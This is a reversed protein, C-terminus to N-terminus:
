TKAVYYAEKVEVSTFEELEQQVKELMDVGHFRMLKVNPAIRKLFPVHEESVLSCGSVHINLTHVHIWASPVDKDFLSQFSKVDILPISAVRLNRCHQIVQIKPTQYPYYEGNSTLHLEQLQEAYIIAINQLIQFEPATISILNPLQEQTFVGDHISSHSVELYKVTSLVPVDSLDSSLSLKLLKTPWKISNDILQSVYLDTVNDNTIALLDNLHDTNARFAIPKTQDTNKLLQLLTYFPIPVDEPDTKIENLLSNNCLELLMLIIAECSPINNRDIKGREWCRLRSIQTKYKLLQKMINNMHIEFDVQDERYSFSFNEIIFENGNAIFNNWKRCVLSLLLISKPFELYSFITNTLDSGISEILSLQDPEPQQQQVMTNKHQDRWTEFQQHIRKQACKKCLLICLGDNQGTALGGNEMSVYLPCFYDRDPRFADYFDYTNPTRRTEKSSWEYKDSIQISFECDNCQEQELCEECISLTKYVDYWEVSCLRNRELFCRDCTEDIDSCDRCPMTRKKTRVSKDGFHKCFTTNNV